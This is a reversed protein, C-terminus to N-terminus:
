LTDIAARADKLIRHKPGAGDVQYAGRDGTIRHGKYPRGAAASRSPSQQVLNETLEDLHAAERKVKAPHQDGIRQLIREHRARQEDVMGELVTEDPPPIHGRDMLDRLFQYYGELQEPSPSTHCKAGIQKPVIWRPLHVPGHRGEHRRIYPDGLIDWPLVTWGKKSAQVAALTTSGTKDVGAVGPIHKLRGLDPLVEGTAGVFMWRAPHWMYQWPPCAAVNLLVREGRPKEPITGVSTVADFNRAM